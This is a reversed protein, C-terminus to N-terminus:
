IESCPSDIVWTYEDGVHLEVYTEEILLLDGDRRAKFHKWGESIYSFNQGSYPELTMQYEDNLYIHLTCGTDNVIRVKIDQETLEEDCGVYIILLSFLTIILLLRYTNKSFELPRTRV